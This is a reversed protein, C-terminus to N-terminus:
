GREKKFYFLVGFFVVFFLLLGTAVDQTSNTIVPDDCDATTTSGDTVFTCESAYVTPFLVVNNEETTEVDYNEFLYDQVGGGRESWGSSYQWASGDAYGGAVHDLRWQALNPSAEGNKLVWAYTIGNTVEYNFETDTFYWDGGASTTFGGCDISVSSLQTNPTGGSTSYLDLTCNDPNNVRLAKIKVKGVSYTSTAQWTQAQWVAGYVDGEATDGTTYSEHVTQGFAADLVFIFVLGFILVFIWFGFLKKGEQQESYNM